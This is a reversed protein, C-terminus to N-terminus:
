AGLRRERKQFTRVARWLDYKRFDPWFIDIFVLESYASQWLLFNSLREEGSTRIILDADSKPLHATYLRKEIEREGIDGMKLEGNQVAIAIKRVADVIEARGGYAFAINLFIKDYKGSIEELRRVLQVLDPPLLDLRGMVKVRVQNKHIMDGDLAESLSKTFIDTIADIEEKPRNFNETSFAYITLSKIKLEQCWELLERVKKAGERHGAIHNLGLQAAWRRNGDLILGVHSPMPGNAIQRSLYWEYVRITLGNNVLKSALRFIVNQL